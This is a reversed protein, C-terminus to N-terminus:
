RQRGSIILLGLLMGGAGFAIGGWFSGCAGGAAGCCLTVWLAIGDRM